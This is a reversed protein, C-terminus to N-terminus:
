DSVAIVEEPCDDALAMSLHSEYMEEPWHLNPLFLKNENWPEENYCPKQPHFHLDSTSHKCLMYSVRPEPRLVALCICVLCFVLFIRVTPGAIELSAKIKPIDELDKTEMKSVDVVSSLDKM